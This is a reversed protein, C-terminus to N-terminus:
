KYEAPNVKTGSEGNLLEDLSFGKFTNSPVPLTPGAAVWFMKAAPDFLVSFINGNTAISKNNDFVEPSLASETGTYPDFRDRIVSIMKEPDFSGYYSSVKGTWDKADKPVLQALRDFRLKTSDATTVPEDHGVAEPAVFHNTTYIVGSPDLRREAQVLKTMEWVSADKNKGDSVAVICTAMHQEQRFFARVDDISRSTKLIEAMMQVHSRGVLGTEAVSSPTAMDSAVVIGEANIGMYPAINGPFGIYAHPIAGTPKRVIITPYKLIFEIKDWDLLRGHLLRGDKAAAGTTVFQSCRPVFSTTTTSSTPMGSLIYEQVVDGFNLLLCSDLTWGVDKTAAVLGRCEEVIDPYSMERAIKDIGWSKCTDLMMKFTPDDKIWIMGAKLQEHMLTGQQFGMEYPTGELFLVTFGGRTEVRGQHSGGDTSGGDPNGSESACAQFVAAALVVCVTIAAIRAVKSM